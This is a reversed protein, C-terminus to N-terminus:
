RKENQKEALLVAEYLGELVERETLGEKVGQAIIANLFRTALEESTIILNM